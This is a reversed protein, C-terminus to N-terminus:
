DKYERVRKFYNVAANDLGLHRALRELQENSPAETELIDRMTDDFSLTFDPKPVGIHESLLAKLSPKPHRHHHSEHHHHDHHSSRGRHHERGLAHSTNAVEGEEKHLPIESPASTSSLPPPSSSLSPSPPSLSSFSTPSPPPAVPSTHHHGALRMAGLLSKYHIYVRFANWLFVVNQSHTVGRFAVHM